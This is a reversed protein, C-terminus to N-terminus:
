SKKIRRIEDFLSELKEMSIIHFEEGRYIMAARVLTMHNEWCILGGIRVIDTNFVNIDSGNGQGWYVRGTYTPMLKRHRGM